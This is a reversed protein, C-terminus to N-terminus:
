IFDSISMGPANWPASPSYSEEEEEEDDGFPDGAALMEQRWEEFWGLGEHDNNKM